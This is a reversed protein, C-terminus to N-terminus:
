VMVSLKVEDFELFAELAGFVAGLSLALVKQFGRNM